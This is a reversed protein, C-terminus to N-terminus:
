AVPPSTVAEHSGDKPTLVFGVDDVYYEREVWAIFMKLAPAPDAQTKGWFYYSPDLTLTEM